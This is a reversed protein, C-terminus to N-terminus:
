RSRQVDSAGDNGSAVIRSSRLARGGVLVGLAGVLPNLLAVWLPTQEYQMAEFMGLAETRHVVADASGSLLPLAIAIGLVVVLGALVRPGTPTRAIRRAIWGGVAAAGFGVVFSTIVWLMSVDYVGPQFVRDAGLVFYALSLGAFVVAAMAIYGLLVGGIMRGM